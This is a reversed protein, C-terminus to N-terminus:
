YTENLLDALLKIGPEMRSTDLYSFNLRMTNLHHKTYLCIIHNPLM